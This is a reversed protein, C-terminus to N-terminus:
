IMEQNSQGGLANLNLAGGGALFAIGAAVPGGVVYSAATAILKNNGLAPQGVLGGALALAAPAGAGIMVNKFISKVKPSFIGKSRSSGKKNKKPMSTRPKTAKNVKRKVTKKASSAKSKTKKAVSSTKNKLFQFQGNAKVRVRQLRTKGNKMKIRINKETM